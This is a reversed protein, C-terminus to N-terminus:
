RASAGSGCEDLVWERFREMAATPAKSQLRTLWYSGLSVEVEFPQVLRQERLEHGFMTVPLLAV